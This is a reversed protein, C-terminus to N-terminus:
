YEVAVIAGPSTVMCTTVGRYELAWQFQEFYGIRLGGLNKGARGMEELLFV